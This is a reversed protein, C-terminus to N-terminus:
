AGKVIKIQASGNTEYIFVFYVGAEYETMDGTNVTKTGSYNFEIPPTALPRTDPFQVVIRVESNLGTPPINITLYQDTALTKYYECQPAVEVMDGGIFFSNAWGRVSNFVTTLDSDPFAITNQADIIAEEHALNVNYLTNFNANWEDAVVYSGVSFTYLQTIM